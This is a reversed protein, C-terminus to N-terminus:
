AVSKSEAAEYISIVKERYAKRAEKLEPFENLFWAKIQFFPQAECYEGEADVARKSIFAFHEKQEDTGHAEVYAVIFSKNLNAFDAKKRKSKIEVVRFDPNDRRARQLKNYEDSDFLMAAKMETKTLEITKANFNIIM